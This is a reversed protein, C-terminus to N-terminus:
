GNSQGKSIMYRFIIQKSTWPATLVFRAFKRVGFIRNQARGYKILTLSQKALMIWDFERQRVSKEDKINSFIYSISDVLDETKRNRGTLSEPNGSFYNYIVANLFVIKRKAIKIDSLLIQDEALLTNHFPSDVILETRFIMRWIGPALAMSNLDSSDKSFFTSVSLDISNVEVFGGVGLDATSSEVIKYLDTLNEVVPQDDADWFTVWQTRVKMVGANRAGGPSNYIGTILDFNKHKQNEAITRLEVETAEDAKDHVVVVKHGLSLADAIAVELHKLRGAMNRVPIVITLDKM